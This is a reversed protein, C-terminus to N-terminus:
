PLLLIRAECLDGIESRRYGSELAVKLLVRRFGRRPRAVGSPRLAEENEAAANELMCPYLRRPGGLVGDVFDHSDDMRPGVVADKHFPM